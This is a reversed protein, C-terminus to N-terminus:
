ERNDTYFFSYQTKNLVNSETTLEGHGTNFDGTWHAEAFRKMKKTNKNVWLEGSIRGQKKV